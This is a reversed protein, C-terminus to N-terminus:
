KIVFYQELISGESNQHQFLSYLYITLSMKNCVYECVCMEQIPYTAEGLDSLQFSTSGSFVRTDQDRAM